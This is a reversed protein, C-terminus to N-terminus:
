KNSMKLDENFQIWADVDMVRIMSEILDKEIRMGKKFRICSKGRSIKKGLRNEYEEVISDISKQSVVFCMNYLSVYNKQIALSIYPLAQNSDNLYGKPYKSLPISFSPMGYQIMLETDEDITAYIIELIEKFLGLLAEDKGLLYSRIIAEM